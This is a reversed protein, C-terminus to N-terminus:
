LLFVDQLMETNSVRARPADAASPRPALPSALPRPAFPHSPHPVLPHPTLSPIRPSPVRPVPCAHSLVRTVPRWSRALDEGGGGTRQPRGLAAPGAPSLPGAGAEKLPPAGAARLLNTGSRGGDTGRARGRGRGAMNHGGCSPLRRRLLRSPHPRARDRQGPRGPLPRPPLSLYASLPPPATGGAPCPPVARRPM